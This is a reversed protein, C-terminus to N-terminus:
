GPRDTRSARLTRIAEDICADIAAPDAGQDLLVAVNRRARRTFIDIRQESGDFPAAFTQGVIQLAIETLEAKSPQAPVAAVPKQPPPACDQGTLRGLEEEFTAVARDYDHPRPWDAEALQRIGAIQVFGPKIGPMDDLLQRALARPDPANNRRASLRSRFFSSMRIPM